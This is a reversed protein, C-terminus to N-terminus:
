QVQIIFHHPAGVARRVTRATPILLLPLDAPWLYLELLLRSRRCLRRGLRPWIRPWTWWGLWPRRRSRYRPWWRWPWRRWSRRRWWWSRRWRWTCLRGHQIRRGAADIRRHHQLLLHRGSDVHGSLAVAGLATCTQRSGNFRGETPSCSQAAKGERDLLVPRNM